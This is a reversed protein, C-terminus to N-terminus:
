EIYKRVDPSIMSERESEPINLMYTEMATAIRRHADPVDLVPTLYRKPINLKISTVRNSITAFLESDEEIKWYDNPVRFFYPADAHYGEHFQIIEEQNSIAKSTRLKKVLEKLFLPRTFTMWNWEEKFEHKPVVRVSYSDNDVDHSIAQFQNSFAKINSIEL